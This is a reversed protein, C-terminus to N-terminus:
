PNLYKPAYTTLKYKLTNLMKMVEELLNDAPTYNINSNKYLRKSLEIQMELEAGSAFAIVVFHRYDKKTGRTKGEAINSPISVASRRMQSILSYLEFNPFDETLRYVEVVLNMSKQWVMLDKYSSM